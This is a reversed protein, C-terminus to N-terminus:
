RRRRSGTASGASPPAHHRAGYRVYYLAAALVSLTVAVADSFALVQPVLLVLTVYIIWIVANVAAYASSPASGKNTSQRIM